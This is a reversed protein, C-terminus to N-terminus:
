KQERLMMYLWLLGTMTKADCINNSVVMGLAEPLSFFRKTIQEDEEPQAEGITLGRALYVDMTEDLFGPSAYFQYLRKWLKARVGTEELLERKAAALKNEGLDIRGAPLEWLYKGAAYRYQRVLLVLADDRGSRPEEVAMIVVSGTHRVVDRQGTHEGERVIDSFISFAPGEYILKSSIVQINKTKPQSRKTSRKAM